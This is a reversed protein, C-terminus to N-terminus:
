CSPPPTAAKRAFCETQPILLDQYLGQVAPLDIPLTNLRGFRRVDVWRHGEFLLSYRRQLLLETVFTDDSSTPTLTSAALGGSTTRIVNIDAIAAARAGTFWEAEARLLILEESRIIPIPSTLDPYLKFAQDTPIGPVASGTTLAPSITKIKTQYRLDPTSDPRTPADTKISPHAAIFPSAAHSLGNTLDGSATSYIFQPGLNLNSTSIFSEAINQLVQQYCTTGNAGCAPNRLSAREANYRAALARNFTLFTAPTNFGAFGTNLTFPFAAAAVLHVKAQDLRGVIYSYMSDRSVFPALDTPNSEVEVPGGNKGREAVFGLTLAEITQAFGRAGEKQADSLTVADITQLFNYANRTNVYFGNWFAAGAGCTADQTPALWCTTNRGETPTYNFSERGLIGAASIFGAYQARLQFLLGNAGLQVAATPDGAIGAPTPNNYNPVTLQDTSCAALAALAAFAAFAALATTRAARIGRRLPRGAEHTDFRTM